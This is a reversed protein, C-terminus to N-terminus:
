IKPPRIVFPQLIVTRMPCGGAVAPEFRLHPLIALVSDLFLQALARVPRVTTMDIRGSTDVAFQVLVTDTVRSRVHPYEPKPNDAALRAQRDVHTMPIFRVWLPEAATPGQHGVDLHIRLAISDAAFNVPYIPGPLPPGGATPAVLPVLARTFDDDLGQVRAPTIVHIGSVTGDRHLVFVYEGPMTAFAPPLKASSGPAQTDVVSLAPLQSLTMFGLGDPHVRWVIVRLAPVLEAAMARDQLHAPALVVFVTDRLTDVAPRCMASATVTPPPEPPAPTGTQADTESFPLGVAVFALALVRGGLM